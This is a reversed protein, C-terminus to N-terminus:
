LAKKGQFYYELNEIVPEINNVKTRRNDQMDTLVSKIIRFIFISSPLALISICFLIDAPVFSNLITGFGFGAVGCTVILALLLISEKRDNELQRQARRM